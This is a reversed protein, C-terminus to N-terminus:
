EDICTIAVDAFSVHCSVNKMMDDIIRQVDHVEIRGDEDTPAMMLAKRVVKCTAHGMVHDRAVRCSDRPGSHTDHPGSPNDQRPCSIMIGDAFHTHEALIQIIAADLIIGRTHLYMCSALVAMKKAEKSPVISCTVTKRVLKDMGATYYDILQRDGHIIVKTMFTQAAYMYKGDCAKLSERTAHSMIFDNGLGFIKMSLTTSMFVVTFGPSKQEVKEIYARNRVIIATLFTLNRLCATRDAPLSIDESNGRIIAIVTPIHESGLVIFMAQVFDVASPGDVIMKMLDADLVYMYAYYETRGMLRSFSVLDNNAIMERAAAKVIEANAVIHKQRFDYDITKDYIISMTDM